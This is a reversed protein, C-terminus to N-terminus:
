NRKRKGQTALAVLNVSPAATHGSTSTGAAAAKQNGGSLEGGGTDRSEGITECVEVECHRAEFVELARMLDGYRVHKALGPRKYVRVLPRIYRDFTTRGMCCLGRATELDVCLPDFDHPRKM